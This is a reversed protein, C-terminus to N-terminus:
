GIEMYGLEMQYKVDNKHSETIKLSRNNEIRQLIIYFM